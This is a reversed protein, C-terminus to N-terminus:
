LQLFKLGDLYDRLGVINMEECLWEIVADSAEEPSKGQMETALAEEMKKKLQVNMGICTPLWMYNLEYVGERVRNVFLM